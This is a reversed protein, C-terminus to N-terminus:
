ASGDLDQARPHGRSWLGGELQQAPAWGRPQAPLELARVPDRSPETEQGWLAKRKLSPSSSNNM